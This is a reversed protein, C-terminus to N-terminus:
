DWRKARSVPILRKVRMLVSREIRGSCSGSSGATASDTAIMM